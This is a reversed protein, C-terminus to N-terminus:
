PNKVLSKLGQLSGKGWLTRKRKAGKRPPGTPDQTGTRDRAKHGRGNTLDKLANGRNLNGQSQRTGIPCNIKSRKLTRNILLELDSRARKIEDWWIGWSLRKTRFIIWTTSISLLTRKSWRTTTVMLQRMLILTLKRGVILSTIWTIIKITKLCYEKITIKIISLYLPPISSLNLGWKLM